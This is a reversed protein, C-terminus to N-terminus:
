KPKDLRAALIAELDESFRLCKGFRRGDGTLTVHPNGPDFVILELDELNRITLRVDASYENGYLAFGYRRGHTEDIIRLERIVTGLDIKRGGSTDEGWGANESLFLFRLLAKEETSALMTSSM